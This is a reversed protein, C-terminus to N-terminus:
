RLPQRDVATRLQYFLRELLRLEETIIEAHGQLQQQFPILQGYQTVLGNPFTITLHYEGQKPLSSISQVEGLLIGYEMSPYNELYVEVQQGKALKGSNQVPVRLHGIVAQKEGGVTIPPVINMVIQGTQVLQNESWFDSFSVLGARPAVLLYREEWQAMASRLNDLATLLDTRLQEGEQTHRTDLQQWERELDAVQVRIQSVESRLAEYFEQAELWQRENDELAKDAITQSAHLQESRRYDKEALQVKRELLQQQNQKQDLLARYRRLQRGVAQQQQYHPTLKRYLRYAQAVQQLRAYSEQLTGLRYTAMFWDEETAKSLDFESLQQKLQTVHAYYAPNQVVALLQESAVSDHDSVLLQNLPGDARAMVPVPPQPTTIVVKAPIRDPYRILWGLFLLVVVLVLVLSEGWRLVWRPPTALVEQLYESPESLDAVSQPLKNM